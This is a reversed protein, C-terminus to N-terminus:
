TSNGEECILPGVAMRLKGEVGADYFELRFIPLYSHNTIFGQDTKWDQLTLGHWDLVTNDCLCRCTYITYIVFKVANSCFISNVYNTRILSIYCCFPSLGYLLSRDLVLVM